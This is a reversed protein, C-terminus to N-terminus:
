LCSNYATVTKTIDQKQKKFCAQCCLDLCDLLFSLQSDLHKKSALFLIDTFHNFTLIYWDPTGRQNKWRDTSARWTWRIFRFTLGSFVCVSVGKMLQFICYPLLYANAVNTLSIKYRPVLRVSTLQNLKKIGSVYEISLYALPVTDEQGARQLYILSNGLISFHSKQTCVLQWNTKSFFVAQDSFPPPFASFRTIVKRTSELKGSNM